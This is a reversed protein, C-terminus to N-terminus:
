LSAIPYTFNGHMTLYNNCFIICLASEGEYIVDYLCEFYSIYYKISFVQQKIIIDSLYM